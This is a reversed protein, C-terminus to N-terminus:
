AIITLARISSLYTAPCWTSSHRPRSWRTCPLHNGTVKVFFYVLTKKMIDFRYSFVTNTDMALRASEIRGGLRIVLALFYINWLPDIQTAWRFGTYGVPALTGYNAPPCATIFREFDKDVDKLYKVVDKSKDWLIRNEIPFPFIDTDGHDAVNAIARQLEKEM